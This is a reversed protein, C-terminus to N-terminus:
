KLYKEQGGNESFQKQHMDKTAVTQSKKQRLLQKTVFQLNDSQRTSKRKFEPTDGAHSDLEFQMSQKENTQHVGV